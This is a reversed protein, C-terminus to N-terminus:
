SQILGGPPWHGQRRAASWARGVVRILLPGPAGEPLPTSSPDAKPIVVDGLHTDTADLVRYTVQEEDEATRDYRLYIAM